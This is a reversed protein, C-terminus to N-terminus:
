GRMSNLLYERTRKEIIPIVYSKANKDANRYNVLNESMLKYAVNPVHKKCRLIGQDVADANSINVNNKAADTLEKTTFAAVCGVYKNLATDFTKDPKTENSGCATLLVPLVLILFQNFRIL